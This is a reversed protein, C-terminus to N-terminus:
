MLPRSVPDPDVVTIKEEWGRLATDEDRKMDEKSTHNAIGFISQLWDDVDGTKIWRPM